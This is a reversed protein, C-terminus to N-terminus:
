YCPTEHSGDPIPHDASCFGSAQNLKEVEASPSFPLSSYTRNEEDVISLIYRGTGPPSYRSPVWPLLLFELREGVGVKVVEPRPLLDMNPPPPEWSGSETERKLQESRPYIFRVCEGEIKAIAKETPVGLPRDSKNVIVFRWAESRGGNEFLISVRGMFSLGVREAPEEDGGHACAAVLCLFTLLLSSQIKM